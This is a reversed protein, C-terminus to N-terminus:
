RQLCEIMFHLHFLAYATSILPSLVTTMELGGSMMPGSTISMLKTFRIVYKSCAYLGTGTRSGLFSRVPVPLARYRFHSWACLTWNWYPVMIFVTGSSAPSPVRFPVMRMSDLEPVPGLALSHGHVPFPMAWYRFHSAWYRFHYLHTVRLVLLPLNSTQTGYWISFKWFHSGYTGNSSIPIGNGSSTFQANPYKVCVISTGLAGM